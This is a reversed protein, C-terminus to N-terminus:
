VTHFGLVTQQPVSYHSTSSFPQRLQCYQLSPVQLPLTSVSATERTKLEYLFETGLGRCVHKVHPTARPSSQEHSNCLSATGTPFMGRLRVTSHRPSVVRWARGPSWTETEPMNRGRNREPNRCIDWPRSDSVNISACTIDHVNINGDRLKKGGV